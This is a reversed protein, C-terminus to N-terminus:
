KCTPLTQTTFTKNPLQQWTEFVGLLGSPVCGSISTNYLSYYTGKNSAFAAPISGTINTNQDLGLYLEKPLASWESPLTGTTSKFLAVVAAAAAARAVVSCCCPLLLAVDAPCYCALVKTPQNCSNFWWPNLCLLSRVKLSALKCM